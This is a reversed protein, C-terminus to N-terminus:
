QKFKLKPIYAGNVGRLNKTCYPIITHIFNKVAWSSNEQIYVLSLSVTDFAIAKWYATWERFVDSNDIIGPGKLNCLLM